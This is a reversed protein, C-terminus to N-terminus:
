FNAVALALSDIRVLPWEKSGLEHAAMTSRCSLIIATFIMLMLVHHFAINSRFGQKRHCHPAPSGLAFKKVQEIPVAM